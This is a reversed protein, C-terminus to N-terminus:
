ETVCSAIKQDSWQNNEPAKWRFPPPVLALGNFYADEQQQQEGEAFRDEAAPKCNRGPIIRDRENASRNDNPCCEAKCLAFRGRTNENERRDCDPARQM